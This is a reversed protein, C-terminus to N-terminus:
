RYYHQSESGVAMGVIASYTFLISTINLGTYLSYIFIILTIIVLGTFLGSVEESSSWIKLILLMVILAVLLAAFSLAGIIGCEALVQPWFQDISGLGRAYGMFEESLSHKEYLAPNYRISVIGGYSGPGAGLLFHEKWIALATDRATNRFNILDKDGYLLLQREINLYKLINIDEISFIVIMLVILLVLVGVFWRRGKHIQSIGLILFGTYAMRSVSTLIGSILPISYRYRPKDAMSLYITLIILCYLGFVNPNHMLSSTRFIGLRWSPNNFDKISQFIYRGSLAWLEQLIAVIGLFVTIILLLRFIRKFDKLDKIFSAYIFLVIFNKIYDFIGLSTVFLSNGNSLGSVFGFISFIVIPSLLIMFLRDPFRREKYFKLMALPIFVIVTIEDLYGILHSLEKSFPSLLKVVNRQFPLFILIVFLWYRTIREFV